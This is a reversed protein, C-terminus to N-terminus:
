EYDEIYEITTGFVLITFLIKGLTWWNLPNFDGAIFSGITYFFLILLVPIILAKIRRKIKM